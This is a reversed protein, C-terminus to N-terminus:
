TRAGPTTGNRTAKGAQELRWAWKELSCRYVPFISHPTDLPQARVADATGACDIWSIEGRPTMISRISREALALVVFIMCRKEEGFAAPPVGEERGASMEATNDVRRGGMLNLIADATRERLPRRSESKALNRWALQNFTEIM